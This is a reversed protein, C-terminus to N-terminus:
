HDDTPSAPDPAPAPVKRLPEAAARVRPQHAPRPRAAAARAHDTDTSPPAPQRALRVLRRRGHAAEDLEESAEAGGPLTGSGLDLLGVLALVLALRLKRM